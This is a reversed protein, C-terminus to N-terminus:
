SFNSLFIAMSKTKRAFSIDFGNRKAPTDGTKLKFSFHLPEDPSGVLKHKGNNDLYVCAFRHSRMLLLEAQLEHSDQPTFGTLKADFYEGKGDLKLAESFQLSGKSVYFAFWVKEAKLTIIAKGNIIDGISDIDDVPIFFFKDLGGLNDPVSPINIDNM